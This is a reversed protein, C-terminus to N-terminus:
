RLRGGRLEQQKTLMDQEAAKQAAIRKNIKQEYTDTDVDPVPKRMEALGEAEDVYRKVNEATPKITAIEKAIDKQQQAIEEVTEDAFDTEEQIKGLKSYQKELNLVKRREELGPSLRAAVGATTLLNNISGQIVGM